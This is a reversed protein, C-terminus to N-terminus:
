EPNERATPITDTLNGPGSSHRQKDPPPPCGCPPFGPSRQPRSLCVNWRGHSTLWCPYLNNTVRMEPPFDRQDKGLLNLYPLFVSLFRRWRLLLFSRLLLISGPPSSYPGQLCVLGKDSTKQPECQGCTTAHGEGVWWARDQNYLGWQQSCLQGLNHLRTAQLSEWQQCMWKGSRQGGDM